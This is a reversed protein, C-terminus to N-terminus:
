LCYLVCWSWPDFVIPEMPNVQLETDPVRASSCPPYPPGLLMERPLRLRPGLVLKEPRKRHIRDVSGQWQYMRSM